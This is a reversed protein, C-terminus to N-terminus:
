IRRGTLDPLTPKPGKPVNEWAEGEALLCSMGNPMTVVITWSTGDVASFIEFVTGNTSLGLAGPMESYNTRLQRTIEAHSMCQSNSDSVQSSSAPVVREPSPTTCAMLFGALLGTVFLRRM